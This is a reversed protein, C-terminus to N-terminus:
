PAEAGAPLATAGRHVPAHAPLRPRPVANM